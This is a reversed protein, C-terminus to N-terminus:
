RLDRVLQKRLVHHRCNGSITRNPVRYPCYLMSTRKIVAPSPISAAVNLLYRMGTSSCIPATKLSHGSQRVDRIVTQTRTKTGTATHGKVPPPTRRQRHDTIPASTHGEHGPPEAGPVAPAPWRGAATWCASSRATLRLCSAAQLSGPAHSRRSSLRVSLRFCGEYSAQPREPASWRIMDQCLRHIIGASAPAQQRRPEHKM